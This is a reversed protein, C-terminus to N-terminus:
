SAKVRGSFAPAPWLSSLKKVTFVVYGGEVLVKVEVSVLVLCWSHKSNSGWPLVCCTIRIFTALGLGGWQLKLKSDSGGGGM